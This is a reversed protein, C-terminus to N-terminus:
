APQRTRENLIRTGDAFHIETVGEDPHIHVVPIENYHAGYFAKAVNPKIPRTNEKGSAWDKSYAICIGDSDVLEAITDTGQLYIDPKVLIVSEKEAERAGYACAATQVAHCIVPAGHMKSWELNVLRSSQKEFPAPGYAEKVMSALHGADLADCFEQTIGRVSLNFQRKLLAANHYQAELNRGKLMVMAATESGAGPIHERADKAHNAPNMFHISTGSLNNLILRIDPRRPTQPLTLEREELLLQVQSWLKDAEVVKRRWTLESTHKSM